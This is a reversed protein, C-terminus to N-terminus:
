EAEEFVGDAEPVGWVEDGGRRGAGGGQHRELAARPHGEVGAM